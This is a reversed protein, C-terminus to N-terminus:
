STPLPAVSALKRTRLEAMVAAWRADRPMRAPAAADAADVDMVLRPQVELDGLQELVERQADMRVFRPAAPEPAGEAAAPAHSGNSRAVERVEGSAGVLVLRAEYARGPRPVRLYYSGAEVTVDADIIPEESGKEYFRLLAKPDALGVALGQIREVPVEWHAFAWSPDRAM